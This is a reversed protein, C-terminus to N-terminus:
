YRFDRIFEAFEPVEDGKLPCKLEEGSLEEADDVTNERFQQRVESVWEGRDECLQKFTGVFEMSMSAEALYDDIRKRLEEGLKPKATIGSVIGSLDSKIANADMEHDFVGFLDSKIAALVEDETKYWLFGGPAYSPGKDQDQLFFGYPFEVPSREMADELRAFATEFESM